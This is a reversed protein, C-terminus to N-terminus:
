EATGPREWAWSQRLWAARRLLAPFVAVRWTEPSICGSSMGGRAFRKVFHSHSATIEIGAFVFFSSELTRLLHGDESPIPVRCLAQQIERLLFPDGRLGSHADRPDILDSIVAWDIALPLCTAKEILGMLRSAILEIWIGVKLTQDAGGEVDAGAPLATSGSGVVARVAGELITKLDEYRDPPATPGFAEVVRDFLVRNLDYVAFLDPEDSILKRMLQALTRPGEKLLFDLDERRPHKESAIQEATQGKSKTRLNRDAGLALLEGIVELSSPSAGM